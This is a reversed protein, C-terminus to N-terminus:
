CVSAQRRQGYLVCLQSVRLRLKWGLGARARWTTGRIAPAKLAVQHASTRDITVTGAAADFQANLKVTLFIGNEGGYVLTDNAIM